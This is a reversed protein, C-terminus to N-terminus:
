VPRVPNTEAQTPKYSSLTRATWVSGQETFPQLVRSGGRFDKGFLVDQTGESHGPATPPDM